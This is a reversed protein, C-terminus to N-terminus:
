TLEIGIGNNTSSLGMVEGVFVPLPKSQIGSGIENDRHNTFDRNEM